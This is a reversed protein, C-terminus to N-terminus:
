ISSTAPLRSAASVPALERPRRVAVAALALVAFASARGPAGRAAMAVSALLTAPVAVRAYGAADSLFYAHLAGASLGEGAHAADALTAVLSCLVAAAGIGLTVAM